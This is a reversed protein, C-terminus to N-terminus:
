FTVVVTSKRTMKVKLPINCAVKKLICFGKHMVYFYFKLFFMDRSSNCKM